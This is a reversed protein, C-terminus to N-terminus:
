RKSTSPTSCWSIAPSSMWRRAYSHHAVVRVLAEDRSAASTSSPATSSRGPCNPHRGRDRRARGVLTAVSLSRHRSHASGILLLGRQQCLRGLSCHLRLVWEPSGFFGRCRDHRGVDADGAIDFKSRARGASSGVASARATQSADDRAASCARRSVEYATAAAGSNRETLITEM